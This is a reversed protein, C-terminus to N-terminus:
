KILYASVRWTDDSGKVATVTELALAKHEFTTYFQVVVYDGDPVDPLSKASHATAIHRSKMSGLPSRIAEMEKIWDSETKSSKFLTSANEWSAAYKGHDTLHLWSHTSNEIDEFFQNDEAYIHNIYLILILFTVLRKTIKLM